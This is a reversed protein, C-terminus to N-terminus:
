GDANRFVMWVLVRERTRRGASEGVDRVSVDDERRVIETSLFPM